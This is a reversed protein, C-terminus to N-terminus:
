LILQLVRALAARLRLRAQSSHLQSLFVLTIGLKRALQPLQNRVLEEQHHQLLEMLLPTDKGSRKLQLALCEPLDRAGIGPPDFSQVIHLATEAESLDCDCVMAIDALSTRLYGHDGLSDILQAAIDKLKQPYDSLELERQMQEQFSETASLSNFWYEQAAISDSGMFDSPLPLEESWEEASAAQAEYESEDEKEPRVEPATEPLPESYSEVELVPNAALCETLYEQLEMRSYNLLKLSQLQKASMQLEQRQENKLNQQFDAM